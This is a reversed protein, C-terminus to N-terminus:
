APILLRFYKPGMVFKILPTLDPSTVNRSRTQFPAFTRSTALFPHHHFQDFKINVFVPFRVLTDKPLLFHKLSSSHSSFRKRAKKAKRITEWERYKLERWRRVALWEDKWMRKLRLKEFPQGRVSKRIAEEFFYGSPSRFSINFKQYWAPLFNRCSSTVFLNQVDLKGFRQYEKGNLKKKSEVRRTMSFLCSFIDIKVRFPALFLFAFSYYEEM